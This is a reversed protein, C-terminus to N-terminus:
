RGRQHKLRLPNLRRLLRKFRDWGLLGQRKRRTHRLGLAWCLRTRLTLENRVWVKHAAPLLGDGYVRVRPWDPRTIVTPLYFEVWAMAQAHMWSTTRYLKGDYEVTIDEEERLAGGVHTEDEYSSDAGFIRQDDYGMAGALFGAKTVGHAGGMVQFRREGSPYRMLPVIPAETTAVHWLTVRQNLALLKDILGPYCRSAILWDCEEGADCAYRVMEPTADWIMAYRVRAGLKALAPIAANVAMVDPRLKSLNRMLSPGSGCISITRQKPARFERSSQKTFEPLGRAINAAVQAAMLDLDVNLQLKYTPAVRQVLGGRRAEEFTMANPIM